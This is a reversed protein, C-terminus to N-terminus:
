PVPVKELHVRFWATTQTVYSSTPSSWKSRIFTFVPLSYEEGTQSYEKTIRRSARFLVAVAAVHSLYLINAVDTASITTSAPVRHVRVRQVSRDTHYRWSFVPYPWSGFRRKNESYAVKYLSLPSAVLQVTRLEFGPTPSIKRIRRSRGQPGGLRRNLPYRTEKGPTFRGRRPTLWRGWRASLNFFSYLYM